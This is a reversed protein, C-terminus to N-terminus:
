RLMKIISVLLLANYDVVNNTAKHCYITLHLTIAIELALRNESIRSIGIFINLHM